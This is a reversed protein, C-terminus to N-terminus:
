IIAERAQRTGRVRAMGLLLAFGSLLMAVPSPEPVLSPECADGVQNQDEDEQALSCFGPTGCEGSTNCRMALRNEDGATCTGGGPGNDRAPCNDVGNPILDEDRDIGM